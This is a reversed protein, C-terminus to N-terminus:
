DLKLFSRAYNRSISTSLTFYFLHKGKAVDPKGAVAIVPGEGLDLELAKVIAEEVTGHPVMEGGIKSFRSLRGEIFIFEDEDMRGIDGTTFWGDKLVEETKEPQGLYGEFINPGKLTIVGTEGYPNEKGTDPDIFRITMGSYADQQVPEHVMNMHVQGETVPPDPLNVSSVPSTETLGYGELYQSGFKEHWQEVLGAPTKEAGAIVFQLSELKEPEAKKLYPKLFTPTGLLATVKDEHIADVAKRVELPSPVTVLRIRQDASVM